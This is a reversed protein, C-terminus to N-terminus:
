MLGQDDDWLEDGGFDALDDGADAYAEPEWIGDRGIGCVECKEEAENNEAGCHLCKWLAM